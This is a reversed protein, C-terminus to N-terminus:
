FSGTKRCATLCLLHISLLSVSSSYCSGTCLNDLFVFSCACLAHVMKSNQHRKLPSVPCKQSGPCDKIRDVVWAKLDWDRVVGLRVALLEGNENVAAVCAQRKISGKIVMDNIWWNPRVIGLSRANITSFIKM